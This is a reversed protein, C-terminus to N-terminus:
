NSGPLHSSGSIKALPLSVTFTSGINLKSQVQINGNHLDVILRCIALGLGSGRTKLSRGRNVRYFRNFILPLDSSPIGIGNDKVSIIVRDESKEISLGIEGGKPTYKIANEILNFFLQFLLAPDGLVTSSKLNEAFLKQSKQKTLIKCDSIVDEIIGVVDVIAFRSRTEEAEAETQSLFLLKEIVHNLRILAEIDKLLKIRVATPLNEDNFEDEWSTRLVTLPTKLEHAAAMLFHQQSEFSKQLRDLMNNLVVSLEALEDNKTAVTIRKDLNSYSLKHATATILKIPSLVKQTLFYSGLAVGLTFILSIAFLIKMLNAMAIEISEVPLAVTMWGTHKKNHYLKRSFGKFTIHDKHNGPFIGPILERPIHIIHDVHEDKKSVPIKFTLEKAFSSSYVPFKLEDYIVLYIPHLSQNMDIGLQDINSFTGSTSINSEDVLNFILEMESDLTDYLIRRMSLYTIISFFLLVMMSAGFYWLTLRYGIKM